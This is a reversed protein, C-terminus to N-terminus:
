VSEVYNGFLSMRDGKVEADEVLKRIVKDEEDTLSVQGAGVNEELYSVRKTGPIVFVLEDQKLLWAMVLQGPTCKKADAMKHLEDVIVLNKAFNEGQYRPMHPRVDTPDTFDAASRYRGTLIGRGLPAYAFVAVGLERCTQLLNTGASTEIDLDWPNYEVQVASIPHVKHARRLSNSSCESIGLHRIKGEEKLKVMEKVTEEVPTKTDIRHIYYLDIYDVKMRELSKECQQRCYEPATDVVLGMLGASPDEPASKLGFKSALFIDSRREPHLAFWKGLLDECDGYADATDWTTCGLEWARDLLKLREEDPRKSPNYTKLPM